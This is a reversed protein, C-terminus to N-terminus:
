SVTSWTSLDLSLFVFVISLSSCNSHGCEDDDDRKQVIESRTIGRWQTKTKWVNTGIRHVTCFITYM